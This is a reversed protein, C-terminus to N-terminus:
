RHLFKRKYCVYIRLLTWNKPRYHRKSKLRWCYTICLYAKVQGDCHLWCHLHYILRSMSFIPYITLIPWILSSTTERYIEDRTKGEMFCLLIISKVVLLYTGVMSSWTTTDSITITCSICIIERLCFSLSVNNCM